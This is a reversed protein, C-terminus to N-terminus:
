PPIHSSLIRQKHGGVERTNQFYSYTAENQLNQFITTHPVVM